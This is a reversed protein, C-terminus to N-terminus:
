VKVRDIGPNYFSAGGGRGGTVESRKVCVFGYKACDYSRTLLEMHLNKSTKVLFPTLVVDYVKECM